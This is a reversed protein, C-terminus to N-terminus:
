KLYVEKQQRGFNLAEEHSAFYFDICNGRVAGGCDQAIYEKGDIVVITGYPIVYPDTAISYGPTLVQGSAGIVIAYGNEDVPRNTVGCCQYCSCYATCNFTGLYKSNGLNETSPQSREGTPTPVAETTKVENSFNVTTTTETIEQKTTTETTTETVNENYATNREQNDVIICYVLAFVVLLVLVCTYYTIARRQYNKM